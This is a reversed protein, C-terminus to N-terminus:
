IFLYNKYEENYAMKIYCRELMELDSIKGATDPYGLLKEIM